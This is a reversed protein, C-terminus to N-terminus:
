PNLIFKFPITLRPRTGPNFTCHVMLSPAATLGFRRAVLAGPVRVYSLKNNAEVVRLGSESGFITQLAACVAGDVESVRESEVSPFRDGEPDMAATSEFRARVSDGGETVPTSSAPGAVRALTAKIANFHAITAEVLGGFDHEGRRSFNTRFIRQFSADASENLNNRGVWVIYEAQLFDYRQVVQVRLDPADRFGFQRTVEAGPLVLQMATDSSTEERLPVGFYGDLGAKMERELRVLDASPQPAERQTSPVSPTSM